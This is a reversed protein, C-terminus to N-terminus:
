SGYRLGLPKSFTLGVGPVVLFRITPLFPQRVSASTGSASVSAPRRYAILKLRYRKGADGGGDAIRRAPPPMKKARNRDINVPTKLFDDGLTIKKEQRKGCPSRCKRWRHSCVGGCSAWGLFRMSNFGAFCRVVTKFLSLSLISGHASRLFGLGIWLGATTSQVLKNPNRANEAAPNVRRPAIEDSRFLSALKTLKSFAWM